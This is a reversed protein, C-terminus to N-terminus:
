SRTLFRGIERLFLFTVLLGCAVIAFLLVLVAIVFIWDSRRAPRGSDATYEKLIKYNRANSKFWFSFADGVVPIIEYAPPQFDRQAPQWSLSRVVGVAAGAAACGVFSRRDM